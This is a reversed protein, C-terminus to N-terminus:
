RVGEPGFLGIHGLDDSAAVSVAVPEDPAVGSWEYTTAAGVWAVSRYTAETGGRLAVYYGAVSPDVLADWEIAVTDPRGPPATLRPAGSLAPPALALNAATTLVLRTVEAHYSPDMRDATDRANHQRTPDELGETLRVAAFGADSFAHHDGDRGPRDVAGVVEVRPAGYRTGLVGVYRALRRSAGDPPDASFVRVRTTDTTGDPGRAGGIVDADLVALLPLGLARARAAHFRAGGLGTEEASLAMFRITADWRRESMVRALELLAAVGSADDDAGPAPSAGDGVDAARSDYHATVYIVRKDRGIGPLTAVVNRQTTTRGAHDLPFDEYEVQVQAGGRGDLEALRGHIWVRAAGIGRSPDDTASLVHRTGFAALTAVDARLRAPDVRRALTTIEPDASPPGSPPVPRAPRPSPQPIVGVAPGGAVSEAARGPPAPTPVGGGPVGPAMADPPLTWTAIPVGGGAGVTREGGGSRGPAEIWSVGPPPATVRSRCSGTAAVLLVLVFACVVRRAARIEFM